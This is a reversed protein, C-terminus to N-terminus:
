KRYRVALKNKLLQENLSFRSDEFYITGLWRGYKGKRESKLLCKGDNDEFRKKVFAIAEYYGPQGREPTNIGALRVRVKHYIYFGLDVKLDVTDGDIVRILEARYLYSPNKRRVM